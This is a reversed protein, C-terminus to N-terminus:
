WWISLHVKKQWVRWFLWPEYISGWSIQLIRKAGEDSRPQREEYPLWLGQRSGCPCVQFFNFFFLLYEISDDIFESSLVMEQQWCPPKESWQGLKRPEQTEKEEQTSGWVLRWRGMNRCCCWGGICGRLGGYYLNWVVNHRRPLTFTFCSKLVFGGALM